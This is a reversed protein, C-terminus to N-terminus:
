APPTLGHEVAFKVLATHNRLGLKRLIRSRYSQVTKPSLHLIKAAESSSRGEVVLNLVERERRTLTELPTKGEAITGDLTLERHEELVKEGFYRQGATVAYVAELAERAVSEKTLYGAAGAKLALHVHESTLHMSLVVVKTAPRTKLIQRIAEIGSLGPMSIDMFVVDPAHQAALEVAQRGDCAHGVVFIDMRKELIAQLGDRVIAHDDALLVRITM